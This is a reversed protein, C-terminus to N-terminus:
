VWFTPAGRWEPQPGPSLPGRTQPRGIVQRLLRTPRILAPAYGFLYAGASTGSRESPGRPGRRNTPGADGETGGKRPRRTPATGHRTREAGSDTRVWTPGSHPTASVRPRPLPSVAPPLISRIARDSPPHRRKRRM